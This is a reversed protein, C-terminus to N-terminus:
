PRVEKPKEKKLFIDGFSVTIAIHPHNTQGPDLQLEKREAEEALLKLDLGTPYYVEGHQTNLAYGYNALQPDYLYVSGQEAAIRLNLLGVVSLISVDGYQSRVNLQGQIDELLINSRRAQIDVQGNLQQGTIDGFRTQLDMRGQMNELGVKTFEGFFRFRNSLNRVDATGFYNKLYVPCEEPLTILYRARLQSAPEPEGETLRIYNRLYIKNKIRKALYQIKEVDAQATAKNPHKATLELTIAIEPQDWTEIIVEAKEGEINLEYGEQYTFSKELRKTILHLPEGQAHLPGSLLLLALGSVFISTISDPTM